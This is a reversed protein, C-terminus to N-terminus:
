VAFLCLMSTQQPVFQLALGNQKVAIECWSQQRKELDILGWTFGDTLIAQAVM